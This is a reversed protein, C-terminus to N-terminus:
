SRSSSRRAADSGAASTVASSAARATAAARASTLASTGGVVLQDPAPFRRRRSSGGRTTAAPWNWSFRRTPPRTGTCRSRWTSRRDRTPWRAVTVLLGDEKVPEGPSDIDLADDRSDTFRLTAEDRMQEVVGVQVNTPISVADGSVIYLVPGTDDSTAVPSNTEIVWGFAARFVGATRLDPDDGDGSSCGAVALIAAVLM